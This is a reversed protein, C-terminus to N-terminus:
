LGAATLAQDLDAILDEAAEIGVSLRILSESIGLRTREAQAVGSHTTTAPHCALSEAGGLSVALRIVQLADLVQFAAARGGTVEFSFTAGYGQCQRALCDRVAAETTPLGLHNVRIVGARDALWAAVQDANEFAKDMRLRLTELSRTLMWASHVDLQCGMAIRLAKVPKMLAASGLVSGAVLDSHGGVYKTLSYVVLDAGLALPAQFLPGLYTNDVIVLPRRGQRAGIIDALRVLLAIDVLDNTPNAPTEVFFAAIPTSAAGVAAAIDAEDLGDRFAVSQLGLGALVQQILGETGGYLPSSRIITQGPRVHALLATSIAAMGSAFVGCDEAGELIALREELIQLNPNNMRTYVLGADRGAPSPARGAMHDFALRGEEATAFVFTSTLFLPTKVAGESMQPDYGYGLMLTQPQLRRGAIDTRRHSQATM